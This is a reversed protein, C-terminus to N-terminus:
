QLMEAGRAAAKAINEESPPTKGKAMGLDALRLHEYAAFGAQELTNKVCNVPCGDIALIKSASKTTEVIGSVRGGIGALCYMKGAGERTLKRAAQDAVAGVDAAGSCPFILKPGGSCLCANQEAM